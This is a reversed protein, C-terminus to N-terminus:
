YRPANRSRLLGPTRRHRADWCTRHWHRRDEADPAGAPWTVLHPTGAAIQQDCGPCRYAKTAAQGSVARVAFPEGRWDDCRQGAAGLPRLPAADRRRNQRAM